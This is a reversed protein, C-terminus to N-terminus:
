MIYALGPLGVHSDRQLSQSAAQQEARSALHRLLVLTTGSAQPIGPSSSTKMRHRLGSSTPELIRSLIYCRCSLHAQWCSHFCIAFAERRQTKKDPHTPRRAESLRVLFAGWPHVCHTASWCIGSRTLKILEVSLRGQWSNWSSYRTLM